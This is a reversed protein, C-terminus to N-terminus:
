LSYFRMQGKVKEAAVVKQTNMGDLEPIAKLIETCTAHAGSERLHNLVKDQLNRNALQTATPKKETSGGAAKKALSMAIANLRESVDAPMECNDLVYQIAKLNTMKNTM